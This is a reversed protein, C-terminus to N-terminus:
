RADTEMSGDIMAIARAFAGSSVRPARAIAKTFFGFSGTQRFSGVTASYWEIRFRKADPAFAVSTYWQYPMVTAHVITSTSRRAPASGVRALTSRAARV